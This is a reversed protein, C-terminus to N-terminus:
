EQETYTNLDVNADAYTEEELCNTNAGVHTILTQKQETTSQNESTTIKSCKYRLLNDISKHIKGILDDGNILRRFFRILYYM